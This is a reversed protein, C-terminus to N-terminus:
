ASVQLRGWPSTTASSDGTATSQGARPATPLEHQGIKVHTM